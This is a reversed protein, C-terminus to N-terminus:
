DKKSLLGKKCGDNKCICLGQDVQYVSRTKCLPCSPSIAKTNHYCDPCLITTVAAPKGGTLTFIRYHYDSCEKNCVRCEM